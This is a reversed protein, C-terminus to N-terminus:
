FPTTTTGLGVHYMDYICLEQSLAKWQQRDECQRMKQRRDPVISEGIGEQSLFRFAVYMCPDWWVIIAGTLPGHGGHDWVSRDNWEVARSSKVM